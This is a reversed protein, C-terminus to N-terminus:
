SKYKNPLNSVAFFIMFVVFLGILPIAIKMLKIFKKIKNNEDPEQYDGIVYASPVNQPIPIVCNSRHRKQNCTKSQNKDQKKIPDTSDPQINSQKEPDDNTSEDDKPQSQFFIKEIASDM